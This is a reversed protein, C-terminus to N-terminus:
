NAEGRARMGEHFAATIESSKKAALDRLEQGLSDVKDPHYKSILHKYAGRIEAASASPAIQLIDHWQPPPTAAPPTTPQKPAAASRSMAKSVIWYGAVLGLLIVLIESLKM